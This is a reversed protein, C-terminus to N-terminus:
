HPLPKVACFLRSERLSVRHSNGIIVHVHDPTECQLIESPLPMERLAIVKFEKAIGLNM